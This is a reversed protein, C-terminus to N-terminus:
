ANSININEALWQELDSPSRMDLLAEGLAELKNHSLDFLQELIQEDIAVFKRMLMKRLLLIRGKTEGQQLGQRLGQELGEERGQSIGRNLIKQYVVSEQMIEERFLQNIIDDSFKLGALIQTAAQLNLQEDRDEIRDLQQSVQRLLQEPQDTKALVALPLLSPLEFFIEPEIEWLRIVRYRHSTYQQQFTDRFVEPRTSPKLFIVVQEIKRGYRRYLRVWYDLMRLPLPPSSAPLTQFELHLIQSATELFFLGDVRIPELNLETNLFCIDSNAADEGLLWQVFPYPDQELLFKLISDYSM